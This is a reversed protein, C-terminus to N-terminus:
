YALCMLPLYNRIQCQQGTFSSVSSWLTVTLTVCYTHFELPIVRFFLVQYSWCSFMLNVKGLVSCNCNLKDM